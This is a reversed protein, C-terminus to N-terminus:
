GRDKVEVAKLSDRGLTWVALALVVVVAQAATLLTWGGTQWLIGALMSGAAGGIFNCVVFATNLRSRAESRISILRTQNLVNIGQVAIDILLVALLILAISTGGAGAVGVSLLALVL